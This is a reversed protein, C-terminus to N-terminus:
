ALARDAIKPLVRAAQDGPVAGVSARVVVTVRGHRAVVIRGAGEVLVGRDPGVAIDTIRAGHAREDALTREVRDGAAEPTLYAALTVVLAAKDRDRGPIGFYCDIRATRGIAPMPTGVIESTGGSIRTELLGDLDAATVVQGCTDPVARETRAPPPEATTTFQPLAPAPADARSPPESTCGALLVMGPLVTGLLVTGLQVALARM